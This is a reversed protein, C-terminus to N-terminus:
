FTYNVKKIRLMNVKTRSPFKYKKKLKISIYNIYVASLKLYVANLKIYVAWQNSKFM